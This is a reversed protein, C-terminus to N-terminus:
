RDLVSLCGEVRYITQSSVSHKNKPCVMYTPLFYLLQKSQHRCTVLLTTIFEGVICWKNLLGTWLEGSGATKCRKRCNWSCLIHLETNTYIQKWCYFNLSNMFISDCLFSMHCTVYCWGWGIRFGGHWAVQSTCNQLSTRVPTRVELRRSM